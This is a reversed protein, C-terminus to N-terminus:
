NERLVYEDYEIEFRLKHKSEEQALMLFLNRLSSDFTRDALATYLKFSSKERNMALTLAESYTMEQSSPTKVIYDSIRLDAIKDFSSAYVGTEKIGLLKAKHGMEEGAFEIFIKKMAENSAVLALKTYFDVAEQENEIAFDLIDNFSTFEKM